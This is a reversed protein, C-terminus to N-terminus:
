VIRRVLGSRDEGRVVGTATVLEFWVRGAEVAVVDVLFGSLPGGSICGKEGPVPMVAALRAARQREAETPLGMVSMVQDQSLRVPRGYQSFVGIIIRRRRMVDWNPEYSFKVYIIGPLIPATRVHKKGAIHRVREETPYQVECGANELKRATEAEKQPPTILAHWVPACPNEVIGRSSRFPWPDGINWENHM